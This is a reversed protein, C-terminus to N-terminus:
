INNDIPAIKDDDGWIILTPKDIKRIWAEDPFDNTQTLKFFV